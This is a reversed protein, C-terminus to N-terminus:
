QSHKKRESEIYNEFQEMSRKKVEPSIHAYIQTTSIDKHGLFDKIDELSLGAQRSRVAFTHRGDHVRIKPLDAKEAIRNFAGNVSRDRVIKGKYRKSTQLFIFQEGDETSPFTGFTNLIHNRFALLAQKSRKTMPMSRIGAPTKPDDTIIANINLGKEVSGLREREISIMNGGFDIDQWQLGMVESKRLGQDFILLFFPYWLIESEKKAFELFRDAQQLDYYRISEKKEIIRPFEVFQTPNDKIYGIQIAKKFANSLTANVSKATTISLGQGNRGLGKKNLLMNIFKQHNARTYKNLSYKGIYPKIYMRINARHVVRTGEKVAQKYNTVWDELFEEITLNRPNEKFYEESAIKGEIIKAYSNAEDFTKFGKKHIKNQKGTGPNIGNSIFVEYRYQKAKKLYYKKISAM